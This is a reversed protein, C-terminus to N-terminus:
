DFPLNLRKQYSIAELLGISISYPIKAKHNSRLESWRKDNQAKYNKPVDADFKPFNGWLFFPDFCQRYNGLIPKIFKTGSKTNEIVWTKPKLVEIIYKSLKVLTMDPENGYDDPFYPRTVKYFEVCPPSAWILDFTKGQLADAVWRAFDETHILDEVNMCITPNLIPNNDVSIVEWDSRALFASSAGHLGSFLDLMRKM